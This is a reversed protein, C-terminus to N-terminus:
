FKTQSHPIKKKGAQILLIGLCGVDNNAFTFPSMKFRPRPFFMDSSFGSFLKAVSNIWFM